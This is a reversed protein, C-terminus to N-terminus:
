VLKRKIRQDLLEMQKKHVESKHQLEAKLIDMEAKHKELRMAHMEEYERKMLEKRLEILEKDLHISSTDTNNAVIRNNSELVNHGEYHTHQYESGETESVEDIAKDNYNDYKTDQNTFPYQITTAVLEPDTQNVNISNEVEHNDNIEYHETISKTETANPETQDTHEIYISEEELLNADDINQSRDRRIEFRSM